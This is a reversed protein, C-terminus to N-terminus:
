SPLVVVSVSVTGGGDVEDLVSRAAFGSLVGEFTLDVGASSVAAFVFGCLPPVSGDSTGVTNPVLFFVSGAGGFSVAALVVGGTRCLVLAGAFLFALGGDVPRVPEDDVELEAFVALVAASFGGSGIALM